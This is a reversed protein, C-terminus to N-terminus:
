ENAAYDLPMNALAVPVFLLCLHCLEVYPRTIQTQKLASDFISLKDRLQALSKNDFRRLANMYLSQKNKWIRHETFVKDTPMNNTMAVSLGNLVQWERTLAWNIITPEVGESELRNLLKIARKTDGQLLTEALQFVNFRSQEQVLSSIQQKSINGDPYLLKLKEMEQRAAILNGEFYDCFFSVVEPTEVISIERMQDRVWGALRQGELPYCPVYIGQKDLSKFWKTNQVDKGIKGGHILLLVDPNPSQALDSLLKSGEKGPKGTPLEFEIFQRDAFLSMSQCADLLQNWEFQADAVLSQRDGFGQKMAHTRILEIANLKQQPEEGFILVFPPLSSALQRSLNSPYVQM